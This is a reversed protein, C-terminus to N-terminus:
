RIDRQGALTTEFRPEVYTWAGQNKHEEQCWNINANPYKACEQKLLDFPFPTLQFLINNLNVFVLILYFYQM